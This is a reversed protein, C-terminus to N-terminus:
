RWKRAKREVFYSIIIAVFLVGLYYSVFQKWTYGFNKTFALVVIAFWTVISISGCIAVSYLLESSCDKTGIICKDLNPSVVRQLFLGNLSVVGVLTMKLIFLSSQVLSPNMLVLIIGSLIILILSSNIMNSLRPYVIKLNKELKKRKLSVLHLYDTVSVAGVAVIVFLVHILVIIEYIM